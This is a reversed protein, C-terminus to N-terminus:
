GTKLGNGRDGKRLSPTISIGRSLINYAGVLDANFAKSLRACKFLGRLIRKGCGKSHLPCTSSTYSESMFRLKVGEEAVEELRRKVYGYM